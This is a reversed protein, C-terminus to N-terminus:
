DRPSPSTYLLCTGGVKKRLKKILLTHNHLRSCWVTSRDLKKRYFHLLVRSRPIPGGVIFVHNRGQSCYSIVYFLSVSSLETFAAESIGTWHKGSAYWGLKLGYSLSINEFLVQFDNLYNRNVHLSIRM